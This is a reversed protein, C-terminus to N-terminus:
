CKTEIRDYQSGRLKAGDLCFSIADVAADYAAGHLDTYTIVQAEAREIPPVFFQTSFSIAVGLVVGQFFIKKDMFIVM